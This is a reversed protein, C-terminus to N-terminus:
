YFVSLVGFSVLPWKLPRKYRKIYQRDEILSRKYRKIYKRDEILPRKYRKTYQRDEIFPREYIKSICWFIRSAM